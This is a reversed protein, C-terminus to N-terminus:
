GRFERWRAIADGAFSVIACGEHERWDGDSGKMAFRYVVACRDGAELLQDVSWRWEPGGHFFKGFHEEIAERGVVPPRDPECFAGDSAFYSAARREDRALCAAIFREVVEAHSVFDRGRLTTTTVPDPERLMRRATRSGGQVRRGFTDYTGYAYYACFRAIKM